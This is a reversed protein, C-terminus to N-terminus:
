YMAPGAPRQRRRHRRYSVILGVRTPMPPYKSVNGPFYIALGYSGLNAEEHINSIYSQNRRMEHIWHAVINNLVLYKLKMFRVYMVGCPSSSRCVVEAGVMWKSSIGSFRCIWARLTTALVRGSRRFCCGWTKM